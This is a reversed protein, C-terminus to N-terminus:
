KDEEDFFRNANIQVNVQNTPQQTTDLGLWKSAIEVAKLQASNDDVEKSDMGQKKSELKSAIKKILTGMDLGHLEMLTRLQPKLKAINETGIVSAASPDKTEYSKLAALTANGTELYYKLWKRQKFTLKPEKVAPENAM